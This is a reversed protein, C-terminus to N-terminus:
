RARRRANTGRLTMSLELPGEGVLEVLKARASVELDRRVAEGQIVAGSYTTFNRVVQDVT